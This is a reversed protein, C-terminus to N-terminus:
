TDYVIFQKIMFVIIPKTISRFGEQEAIDWMQLKVQQYKNYSDQVGQLILMLIILCAVGVTSMSNMAFQNKLQQFESKILFSQKM